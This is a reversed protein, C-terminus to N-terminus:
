GAKGPQAPGLFGRERASAVWRSATYRPVMFVEEVAKTPKDGTALALGYIRAVWELTETVPGADRMRDRHESDLLGFAVRTSDPAWPDGSLGAWPYLRSSARVSPRVFAAVTVLRLAEGTVAPGGPRRSVTVQSAHLRGDEAVVVVDVDYGKYNAGSVKVERWIEVGPAVTVTGAEQNAVYRTTEVRSVSVRRWPETLM